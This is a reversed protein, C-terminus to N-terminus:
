QPVDPETRGHALARTIESATKQYRSERQTMRQRYRTWETVSWIDAPVPTQIHQDALDLAQQRGREGWFGLIHHRGSDWAVVGSKRFYAELAASIRTRIAETVNVGTHLQAERVAARFAQLAFQPGNVNMSYYFAKARTNLVDGPVLGDVPTSLLQTVEGRM